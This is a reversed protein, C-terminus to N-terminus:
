KYLHYKNGCINETRKEQEYCETSKKKYKNRWYYHSAMKFSEYAINIASDEM